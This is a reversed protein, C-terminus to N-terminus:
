LRPHAARRRFHGDLLGSAADSIKVKTQLRAPDDGAVVQEHLAGLRELFELEARLNNLRTSKDKRQARATAVQLMIPTLDFLLGALLAVVVETRMM